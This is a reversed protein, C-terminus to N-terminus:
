SGIPHRKRYEIRKRSADWGDLGDKISRMGAEAMDLNYIDLVEIGHERALREHEKTIKLWEEYKPFFERAWAIQAEQIEAAETELAKLRKQADKFEKSNLRVKEAEIAEGAKEAAKEAAKIQMELAVAKMASENSAPNEYVANEAEAKEVKLREIQNHALRAKEQLKEIKKM